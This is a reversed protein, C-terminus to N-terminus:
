PMCATRQGEVDCIPELIVERLKPLHDICVNRLLAVGPSRTTESKNRKIVRIGNLAHDSKGFAVGDIAALYLWTATETATETERQKAIKV